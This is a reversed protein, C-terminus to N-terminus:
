PCAVDELPKRAKALKGTLKLKIDDGLTLTIINFDSFNHTMKCKSTPNIKIKIKNFPRLFQVFPIVRPLSRQCPTLNAGGLGPPARVWPRSM